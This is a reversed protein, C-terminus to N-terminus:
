GALSFLCGFKLESEFWKYAFIKSHESFLVKTSTNLKQRAEWPDTFQSIVPMFLYVFM